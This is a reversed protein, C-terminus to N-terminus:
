RGAQVAPLLTVIPDTLGDLITDLNVPADDLLVDVGEKTPIGALGMADRITTGPEVDVEKVEGMLPAIKVHIMNTNTLEDM